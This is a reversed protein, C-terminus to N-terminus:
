IEAARAEAPGPRPAPMEVAATLAGALAHLDLRARQGTRRLRALDAEVAARERALERGVRERQERVEAEVHERTSEAARMAAGRVGDAQLQAVRVQERLSEEREQAAAIRRAAHEEARAAVSIARREADHRLTEAERRARDMLEAAAQGAAARVDAAETEALRLMREARAGFGSEAAPEAGATSRVTRIEDEVSLAHREAQERRRESESLAARLSHLSGQLRGVVADVAAPEYGRRGIPFPGAEPEGGADLLRSAARAASDAVFTDHVDQTDTRAHRADHGQPTPRM